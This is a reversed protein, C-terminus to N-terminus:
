QHTSDELWDDRFQAGIDDCATEYHFIMPLIDAYEQNFQDYLRFFNQEEDILKNELHEEEIFNELEIKVSTYDLMANSIMSSYFDHKKCTITQPEQPTCTEVSNDSTNCDFNYESKIERIETISGEISENLDAMALRYDNIVMRPVNKPKSQFQEIEKRHERNPLQSIALANINLTTAAVAALICYLKRM